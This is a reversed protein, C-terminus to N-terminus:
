RRLRNFMERADRTFVVDDARQRWDVVEEHLTNLASLQAQLAKPLVSDPVSLKSFKMTAKNCSEEYSLVRQKMQKIHDQINEPNPTQSALSCRSCNLEKRLNDLFKSNRDIQTQLETNKHKLKLIEYEENLKRSIQLSQQLSIAVPDLQDIDVELQNCAVLKLLEQCKQPLADISINLKSLIETTTTTKSLRIPISVAPIGAMNAPQTCYDQLACQDRNHKSVFDGYLPADSLTTPTLLLDVRNDGNFVNNFDNAILRRLKLAKLFYKEYNRTLLFYNGAFIRSRVVNNFGQSRSSAYLEETSYDENTRLGFELGDYRAMNSAVECQNLISYVAISVSTHPLTVSKLLVKENELLDAVWRWTDIVEESMGECYYESPIGIRLNSLNFNEQIEIPQYKRKITTSDLDDQGAICNLIEAADDINRALIGPVDMSNVLPILGYRSVLGYTPKIGVVGCLAAPNRTSGGTDSGIAAICAGSSVAVASGGSSGGAIRWDTEGNYGWPNRTPGFISDVTGSGMAFEDLNSKGILCAGNNILKAYVTADYTPVFNRLMESACTTTVNKTCFNDKIAITIGDLPKIKKDIYFRKESDIAHNEAVDETINVFANLESTQRVKQLCLDVFSTPTLLKDRYARHVEKITYSTLKNM